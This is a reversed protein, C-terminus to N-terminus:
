KQEEEKYYYEGEGDAWRKPDLKHKELTTQLSPWFNCDHIINQELDVMFDIGFERWRPNPPRQLAYCLSEGGCYQASDKVERLVYCTLNMGYHWDASSSHLHDLFYIALDAGYGAYAYETQFQLTRKHTSILSLDNGCVAGVILALGESNPTPDIYKTHVIALVDDICDSLQDETLSKKGDIARALRRMANECVYSDGAGGIVVSWDNGTVHQLKNVNRKATIGASEETESAVIVTDACKMGLILTM